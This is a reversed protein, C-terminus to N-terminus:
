PRKAPNPQRPLRPGTRLIANVAAAHAHDDLLAALPVNLAEAIRRLLHLSPTRASSELNSIYTRTTPPDILHALQDQTLRQLSRLSAIRRGLRRLFAEDEADAPEDQAPGDSSDQVVVLEIM